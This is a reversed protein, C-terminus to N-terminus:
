LARLLSTLGQELREPSVSFTLRMWGTETTNFAPGPVFLVGSAYYIAQAFEVDDQVGDFRILKCFGGKTETVDMVRQHGSLLERIMVENLEYLEINRDIVRAYEELMDQYEINVFGGGRMWRRLLMDRILLSNHVTPAGGNRINILDGIGKITDESAVIYGLRMGALGRDKSWGKIRIVADDEIDYDPAPHVNDRLMMDSFIEDIILTLGHKSALAYIQEMSQESYEDGTPNNPSTILVAATDEQFAQSFEEPDPLFKNGQASYVHDVELGCRVAIAEGIPYGPCPFIL